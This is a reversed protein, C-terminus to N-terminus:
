EEGDDLELEGGDKLRKMEINIAQKKQNLDNMNKINKNKLRQAAQSRRTVNGAGWQSDNTVNKVKNLDSPEAYLNKKADKFEKRKLIRGKLGFQKKLNQLNTGHHSMDDAQAYGKRLEKLENKALAYQPNNKNLGQLIEKQKLIKPALEAARNKNRSEIKKTSRSKLFPRKKMLKLRLSSKNALAGKTENLSQSDAKEEDMLEGLMGQMSQMGDM